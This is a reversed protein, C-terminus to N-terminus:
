QGLLEELSEALEWSLPHYYECGYGASVEVGIPSADRQSRHAKLAQQQILRYPLGSAPDAAMAEVALLQSYLGKQRPDVAALHGGVPREKAGDPGAKALRELARRTLYGVAEHEFHERAASHEDPSLVLVPRFGRLLAAIRQVLAEEGGWSSLLQGLPLAEASRTYPHNPLGLRIYTEVGLISLAERAERVRVAALSPGKLSWAPYGKGVPRRPYQDLGSEGDTLLVVVIRKGARSARALLVGFDLSEDDPHAHFCLIDAQFFEPQEGPAVMRTEAASAPLPGRVPFPPLPRPNQVAEKVEVAEPASPRLRALSWTVGLLVALLILELGVRPLRQRPPRLGRMTLGEYFIRYRGFLIRDGAKLKRSNQLVGNIVLPQGSSLFIEQQRRELTFGSAKRGLRTEPGPGLALGQRASRGVRLPLRDFRLCRQRGDPYRVRLQLLAAQEPERASEERLQLWDWTKKGASLFLLFFGLALLLALGLSRAPGLGLQLPPPRSPQPLPVRYSAALTSLERSFTEIDGLDFAKGGSWRALEEARRFWAPNEELVFSLVYLRVRATRLSEVLESSPFDGEGPVCDSALVVIRDWGRGERALKQAAALLAENLPTTGGTKLGKLRSLLAQPRESFPLRSQIAGRDQFTVLSWETGPWPRALLSELAARARELRTAAFREERLRMSYSLDLVVVVSREPSPNNGAPYLESLFLLASLSVFLFRAM